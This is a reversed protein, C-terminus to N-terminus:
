PTAEFKGKIGLGGGALMSNKMDPPVETNMFQMLAAVGAAGPGTIRPPQMKIKGAEFAKQLKNYIQMFRNFDREKGLTPQEWHSQPYKIRQLSKIDGAESGPPLTMYGKRQYYGESGGMFGKEPTTMKSKDGRLVYGMKQGSKLPGQGHTDYLGTLYKAKPDPNDYFFTHGGYPGRSTVKGTKVINRVEDSGISVRSALGAQKSPVDKIGALKALEFRHNGDKIELHSEPFSKIEIPNKNLFDQLIQKNQPNAFIQKVGATNIQDERFPIKLFKLLETIGEKSPKNARSVTGGSSIWNDYNFTNREGLVENVLAEFIV